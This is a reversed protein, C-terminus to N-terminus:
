RSAEAAEAAALLAAALARAEREQREAYNESCGPSACVYFGPTGNIPPRVEELTQGCKWCTGKRDM